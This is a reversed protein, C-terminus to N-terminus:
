SNSRKNSKRTASKKVEKKASVAMAMKQKEENNGVTLATPKPTKLKDDKIIVGPNNPDALIQACLSNFIEKAKKQTNFQGIFVESGDKFLAIITYKEMFITRIDDTNVIKYNNKIWM